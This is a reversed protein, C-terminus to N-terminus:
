HQGVDDSVSPGDGTGDSFEAKAFIALSGIESVRTIYYPRLSMSAVTDLAVTHAVLANRIDSPTFTDWDRLMGLCQDVATNLVDYFAQRELSAIPLIEGSDGYHSREAWAVIENLVHIVDLTAKSRVPLDDPQSDPLSRWLQERAWVILWMVFEM